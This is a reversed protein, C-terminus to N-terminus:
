GAVRCTTVLLEDARRILAVHSPSDVLVRRVVRADDCVVVGVALQNSTHVQALRSDAASRGAPLDRGAIGLDDELLIWWDPRASIHVVLDKGGHRASAIRSVATAREEMPHDVILRSCSALDRGVEQVDVPVPRRTTGESRNRM